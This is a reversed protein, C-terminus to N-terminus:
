DTIVIRRAAFTPVPDGDEDERWSRVPLLRTRITATDAGDLAAEASPGLLRTRGQWVETHAQLAAVGDAGALQAAQKAYTPPVDCVEEVSVPIDQGDAGDMSVDLTYTHRFFGPTFAPPAGEDEGGGPGDGAARASAETSQEDVCVHATRAGPPAAEAPRSASTALLVVAAALAVRAPRVVHSRATMRRRTRAGSRPASAADIDPSVVVPDRRAPGAM